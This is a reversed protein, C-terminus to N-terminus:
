GRVDRSAPRRGFYIEEIEAQRSILDAAPLESVLHGDSMIYARAALEAAYSLHQEVLVVAMRTDNAAAALRAFLRRCVSPTLGFSLEDILLVRPRRCMARALSVMQQEGGSLQGARVRLKSALEPFLAVAEEPDVGAVQLNQHTTLSPFVSRGELVLGVDTRTRRHAAGHLVRGDVSVSGATKSLTGAMARLATTKGAGNRGLLAVIEGDGAHLSVDWVVWQNGYGACLDVM